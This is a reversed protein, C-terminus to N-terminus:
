TELWFASDTVNSESTSTTVVVSCFIGVRSLHLQATRVLKADSSRAAVRVDLHDEIALRDGDVVLAGISEGLGFSRPRDIL